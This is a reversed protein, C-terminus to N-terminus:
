GPRSCEAMTLQPLSSFRNSGFNPITGADVALSKEPQWAFSVVTFSVIRILSDTDIQSREIILGCEDGHFTTREDSTNRGKFRGFDFWGPRKFVREFWKLLRFAM